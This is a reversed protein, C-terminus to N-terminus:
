GESIVCSSYKKKSVVKGHPNCAPKCADWNRKRCREANLSVRTKLSVNAHLYVSQKQLGYNDDKRASILDLFFLNKNMLHAGYVLTGCFDNWKKICCFSSCFGM